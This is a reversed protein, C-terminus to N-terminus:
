AARTLAIVSAGAIVPSRQQTTCHIAVMSAATVRGTGDLAGAQARLMAAATQVAPVGTKGRKRVVADALFQCPALGVGLVALCRLVVPRTRTFTVALFLSSFGFHSWRLFTLAAHLGAGGGGGARAKVMLTAIINLFAPGHAMIANAGNAHAISPLGHAGGGHMRAAAVALSRVLALILIIVNANAAVLIQVVGLGRAEGDSM